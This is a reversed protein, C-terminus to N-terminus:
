VALNMIFICPSPLAVVGPLAQINCTRTSCTDRGSKKEIGVGGEGNCVNYGFLSYNKLVIWESSSIYDSLVSKMNAWPEASEVKNAATPLFEPFGSKM